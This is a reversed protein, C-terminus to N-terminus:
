KGLGRIKKAVDDVPAFQVRLGSKRAKLIGKNTLNVLDNRATQNSVGFREQVGNVTYLNRDENLMEQLLAIQRDNFNTDRLLELAARKERSKKHIYKKLDELAGVMCKLNYLVFYTLDMEDLETYQYARAYQAKSALIIRSVSMYEILWYGKRILYWYFLARATRGNGDTFPHIYGILFHLSIAASIPHLFFDQKTEDNAFQCFADMLWRLQEHGPPVHVIENTQVDVVYIDDQQRFAGETARDGLTGTTIIHHIEQILAPTMAKDKHELIWQMGAYNNVIMQESHNRPKRNSELMEKAIRRTTAAGELQSSAIAEEMLSSNLYYKKEDEPILNGTQLSGGLGLDLEHLQQQMVLPTSISLRFNARYSFNVTKPWRVTKVLSWLKEPDFGWEKGLYKWKEWYPYSSEGIAKLEMYKNMGLEDILAGFEWKGKVSPPPELRKM